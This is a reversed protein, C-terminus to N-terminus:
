LPRSARSWRSSGPSLVLFREPPFHIASLDRGTMAASAAINVAAAAPTLPQAVGASRTAFGYRPALPYTFWFHAASTLLEPAGAAAALLTAPWDVATHISRM